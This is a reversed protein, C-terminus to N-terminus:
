QIIEVRDSVRIEELNAFLNALKNPFLAFHTSTPNAV